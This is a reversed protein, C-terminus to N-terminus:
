VSRGTRPSSIERAALKERRAQIDPHPGFQRELMELTDIAIDAYGQAIYFDVSELEQRMMNERRAKKLRVRKRVHLSCTDAPAVISFDVEQFDNAATAFPAIGRRESGCVLPRIQSRRVPRRM